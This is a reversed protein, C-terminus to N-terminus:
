KSFCTKLSECVDKFFNLCKELPTRGFNQITKKVNKMDNKRGMRLYVDRPALDPRRKYFEQSNYYDVQKKSLIQEKVLPKRLLELTKESLRFKM